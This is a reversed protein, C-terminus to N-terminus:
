AGRKRRAPRALAGLLDAELDQAHEIGVSLRVLNDRIGRRKREEAPLSAHTMRPPYSALSEVGGLSEGLTFVKLRAVFREVAAFGGKLEVALMGGFGSMQRRALKHQPHSALGPYHVREVAPHNELLRALHLANREHERMRVALTKLGRLVLWSDWPGPIAGAANQYFHLKHFLDERRVVVAGGVVDSHGGLYKTTSHVVVDAGLELPRQFYPSAFTNDVALLAGAPRAAKAVAALDVLKLLPNTPTEVWILRTNPRLAAAFAAPSTSDAYDVEVGWPRYVKELLRYTGGYLDDGAVVHDGPSLLQFVATTAAVGSAFALGHAGSELSALAEELARRTPNGTRSYEYARPRGIGDQQYTSTQYVPVAVAGTLPEAAQGDHIARTEFEM